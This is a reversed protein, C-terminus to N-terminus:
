WPSRPRACCSTPHGAAMGPWRSVSRRASSGSAVTSRSRSACSRPRDAGRHAPGRGCRGRPRAGARVRRWRVARGHRRASPLPGIASRSGDPAPRGRRARADRQDGQVPRPRAPRGCPIRGRGRSARGTAHAIRDSLLERNPLGTTPDYLAGRQVVDALRANELGISALRAFSTLTEMDRETWRRPVAGAALGLVGIVRGAARLPAAIMAGLGTVPVNAPRKHWGDYDDLAVPQGTRLVEGCLGEDLGVDWGLVDSFMGTGVRLVMRTADADVLDVWAHPTGLLASARAMITALLGDQDTRDLLALATEDLARLYPDALAAASERRDPKVLYLARDAVAVLEDKTRGDDPYCAVGASITVGGRPHSPDAHTPGSASPGGSASRWRTRWSGTPAPCYPPSSMAATATSGTASERTARTM